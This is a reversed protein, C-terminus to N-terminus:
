NLALVEDGPQAVCGPPLPNWGHHVVIASGTSCFEVRRAGPVQQRAFAELARPLSTHIRLAQLDELPHDDVSLLPVFQALFMLGHSGVDVPRPAYGQARLWHQAQARDAVAQPPAWARAMLEAVWQNCNQYATSFPHANARYRGALLALAAPRDLAARQLAAGAEGPLLVVSLAPEAPSDMGLMFGALGQDFLRPRGEDCAYYLQRVTWPGDPHSALALGAHSFRVGFRALDTGVRSVLAVQPAEDATAAGPVPAAMAALQQKVAVAMRLLRAQGAAGLKAPRDCFLPLEARAAGASLLLVAAAALRFFVPARRPGRECRSWM